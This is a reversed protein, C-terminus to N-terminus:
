NSKDLKNPDKAHPIWVIIITNPARPCWPWDSCMASQLRKVFFQLAANDYVQCPSSTPWWCRVVRSMQFFFELLHMHVDLEWRVRNESILSVQWKPCVTPRFKEVLLLAQNSYPHDEYLAIGGSCQPFRSFLISYSEWRTCSSPV